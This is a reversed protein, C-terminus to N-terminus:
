NNKRIYVKRLYPPNNDKDIHTVEREWNDQDIKSFYVTADKCIADFETLYMMDTFPLLEKYLLGGGIVYIEDDINQALTMFNEISDCKIVGSPLEMNQTTLVIHTRNPLVNPLSNFTKSGMVINHGITTERFFNMDEKSRWILENDKGLEMNKGIAAIIILKKM